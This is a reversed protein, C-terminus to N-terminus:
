NMYGGMSPPPMHNIWGLMGMMAAATASNIPGKRM